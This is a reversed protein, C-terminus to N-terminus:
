PKERQVEHVLPDQNGMVYLVFPLHCAEKHVCGMAPHGACVPGARGRPSWTWRSRSGPKVGMAGALYRSSVHSNHHWSNHNENRKGFM